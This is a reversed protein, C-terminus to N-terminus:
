ESSRSGSHGQLEVVLERWIEAPQTSADMGEVYWAITRLALRQVDRVLIAFERARPGASDFITLGAGEHSRTLSGHFGIRNRVLRLEQKFPDLRTAFSQVEGRFPHDFSRWVTPLNISDQRDEFLSYLFSATELLLTGFRTLHLPLIRTDGPACEFLMQALHCFRIMREISITVDEGLRTELNSM